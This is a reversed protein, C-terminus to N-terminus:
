LRYWETDNRRNYTGNRVVYAGSENNESMAAVKKFNAGSPFVSVDALRCENGKFTVSSLKTCLSFADSGISTVSAPITIDSLSACNYFASAGISTVSDTLSISRLQVWDKFAEDGICELNNPLILSVIMAYGSPYTDAGDFGIVSSESLDLNVYKHANALAVYLSFASEKGDFAIDVPDDMSAGGEADELAKVFEKYTHSVDSDSSSHHYGADCATVNIVACLVILAFLSKICKRMM